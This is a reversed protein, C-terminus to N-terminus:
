AVEILAREVRRRTALVPARHPSRASSRSTRAALRGAVPLKVGQAVSRPGFDRAVVFAFGTCAIVSALVEISSAVPLSFNRTAVLAVAAFLAGAAVLLTSTRLTKM